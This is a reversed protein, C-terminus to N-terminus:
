TALRAATLADQVTPYVVMETVKGDRVTVVEGHPGREGRDAPVHIHLILVLRHEGADRIDLLETSIGTEIARRIFARAQERNHCSSEADPENAGYWRVDPDLVETAADIEGREFAAWARRLLGIDSASVEATDVRARNGLANTGRMSPRMSLQTVSTM